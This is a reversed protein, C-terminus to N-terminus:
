ILESALRLDGVKVSLSSSDALDSIFVCMIMAFENKNHSSIGTWYAKRSDSTLSFRLDQGHLILTLSVAGDFEVADLQGQVGDSIVMGHLRSKVGEIEYDLIGVFPKDEQGNAFSVTGAVTHSAPQFVQEEGHKKEIVNM